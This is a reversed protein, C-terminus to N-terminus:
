DSDSWEVQEYKKSKQFKPKHEAVTSELQQGAYFRGDTARIFGETSSFEKFRVTVVGEPEKDYLVVNTVEGHKEAEERLDQKIDLILAPNDQIEELTFARKVIVFRNHKNMKKEDLPKSALLPEDESWDNVEREMAARNKVHAKKTMGKLQANVNKKYSMDAEQIKMNQGSGIRLPQEDLMRMAQAISEKRFFVILAEGKFNGDEDKYLKVRKEGETGVAIMGCYRGFVEAIEDVTADLPLGTVYIAKNEAKVKKGGEPGPSTAKRKKGKKKKAIAVETADEADGDKVPENTTDASPKGTDEASGPLIWKQREEYWQWEQGDNDVLRYAKDTSSFSIRKDQEFEKM